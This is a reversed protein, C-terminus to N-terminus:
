GLERLVKRGYLVTIIAASWTTFFIGWWIGILGFGLVIVLLYFSVLPLVIQRYVGIFIAFMPKKIGQLVGITVFTLVYAISIFAAIHLFTTGIAIVESDATFIGMLRSAFIFVLTYGIAIVGIGYKLSTKWTERIRDYKKAGNNQGAIALAAVNLGIMPLLAIQEVRTAIGYAAVAHEGFWGVFYTIVFIGIAITMMNLSAPFGQHAIAKYHAYTPKLRLLWDKGIIGAQVVRITLYISGIAQILVTAWAIGAFGMAPLGYGGFLFWPDLIVNLFFGVVLFNRFSKTDGIANLSSNLMQNIIFFPAGYFIVNMYELATALYTGSAGLLSFLFPSTIIGLITLIIGTIIGFSISQGAFERAEEKNGAGLANSILATAGTGIGSSIAIIIFFVPFSLGLAALAETSVLGGFYTDVVNYMTHFFFGISTPIALKRILQPIHGTTLDHANHM